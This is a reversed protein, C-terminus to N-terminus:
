SPWLRVHRLQERCIRAPLRGIDAKLRKAAKPKGRLIVDLPLQPFCPQVLDRGNGRIQDQRVDALMHQAHRTRELTSLVSDFGVASKWKELRNMEPTPLQLNHTSLDKEVCLDSPDSLCIPSEPM